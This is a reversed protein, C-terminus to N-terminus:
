LERESEKERLERWTVREPTYDVVVPPWVEALLLGDDFIQIREDGWRKCAKATLKRGKHQKRFTDMDTHTPTGQWVVVYADDPIKALLTV